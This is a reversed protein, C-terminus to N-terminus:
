RFFRGIGAVLDIRSLDPMFSKPAFIWSNLFFPSLLAAFFMVAVLPSFIVAADISLDALRVLMQAPEKLVQPDVRFARGAVARSRDLMWGSMVWLTAAASILVLFTSLERSHPVQGQERAQDIRRGTPEETRELDSDEAM